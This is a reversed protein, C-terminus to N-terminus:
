LIIMTKTEGTELDAYWILLSGNILTTWDLLCCTLWVDLNM